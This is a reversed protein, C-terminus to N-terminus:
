YEWEYTEEEFTQHTITQKKQLFPLRKQDQYFFEVEKEVRSYEYYSYKILRDFQDYQYYYNYRDNESHAEVLRNKQDYGLQIDNQSSRISKVASVQMNEDLTLCVDSLCIEGKRLSIQNLNEQNIESLNKQRFYYCNSQNYFFLYDGGAELDNMKKIILNGREDYILNNKDPKFNNKQLTLKGNYNEFYATFNSNSAHKQFNKARVDFDYIFNGRHNKTNDKFTQYSGVTLKKPKDLANNLIFLSTINPEQRFKSYNNIIEFYDFQNFNHAPKFLRNYREYNPFIDLLVKCENYPLFVNFSLGNSLNTSKCYEPFQIMFGWAFWYYNAETYDIDKLKEQDNKLIINRNTSGDEESDDNEEDDYLNGNLKEIEEASFQAKLEKNFTNIYPDIIQKLQIIEKDNFQHKIELMNQRLLDYTFYHTINVEFSSEDYRKRSAVSFQFNQQFTVIDNCVALVDIEIEKLESEGFKGEFDRSQINNKSNKFKNYNALVLKVENQLKLKSQDNQWSNLALQEIENNMLTYNYQTNRFAFYTIDIKDNLNLSVDKIEKYKSQYSFSENTFVDYINNYQQAKAPNASFFYFAILIYRPIIKM